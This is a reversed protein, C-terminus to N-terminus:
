KQSYRRQYWGGLWKVGKTLIWLLPIVAGMVPILLLLCSGSMKVLGFLIPFYYSGAAVGAFCLICIGVKVPWFPRCVQILVIASVMVLLATAATAIEDSSINQWKGLFVVALVVIVDTVGAPLSRFLINSLFHEKIEAKNRLFALFFAPVGILFFSILFLQKPELPYTISLLASFLALFFSFINKVLFLSSSNQINNVVRRGEMVVDPMCSFDSDLLVMQAVHAAAESGSAMAVSCDADKLALIDNVGDGTMAVTHGQAKLSRVFERKQEPTVRGFVTYERMAQDIDESTNLMRADVCREANKIGAEQAAESVTLPTDGSIVKVEVGNREFYAFTGTASERVPNSLLIYALPTIKGKPLEGSVVEDCCAFVLVRYGRAAFDAIEASCEAFCDGLVFEPAGLVYCGDEFIVASYKVRSSFPLVKKAERGAHDLFYSKVAAMTANDNGMARAFDGIRREIAALNGPQLGKAPILDRVEMHNETITGTKDVCLVDVRALTEISKMNHLLVRRKALRTASIAMAISTLLYIGEPIMGVMAAVATAISTRVDEHNVAFSQVFLVIGIPILAFGVIKLMRNLSRMMESQEGTEMAKAERTLKSIYSDAGVETLRARCEGSVVFSGSILSDGTTKEVEDSEGTLLAENVRASGSVVVADACVQSGATFIVIDDRVLEEAIVTVPKGNRVAVAKPAGLMSMEEMARKARLEQVIGILTNIVIIPFFLLNAFSQVACLLVALIVFILNFYTCVNDRIIERVSKAPSEDARNDWGGSKRRAIEEDSLGMWIDTEMVNVPIREPQKKTSRIKGRSLM